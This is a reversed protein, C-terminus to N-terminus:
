ACIYGLKETPVYSAFLAMLMIIWAYAVYNVTLKIQEKCHTVILM